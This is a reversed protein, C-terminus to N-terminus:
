CLDAATEVPLLHRLSFSSGNQPIVQKGRLTFRNLLIPGKLNITSPGNARVTVINYLLADSPRALDLFSVDEAAIDPEYDPFLEFPSLVLFALSPDDIVQLWQFPEQGPESVLMYQKISEFGLLGLPLHILVPQEAQVPETLTQESINM